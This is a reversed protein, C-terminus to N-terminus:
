RPQSPQIISKNGKSETMSVKKTRKKKLKLDRAGFDRSDVDSM